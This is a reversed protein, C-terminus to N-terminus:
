TAWSRKRCDSLILITFEEIDEDTSKQFYLAVDELLNGQNGKLALVYDAKSNIIKAAIEKQTGMADITVTCDEIDLSDILEPIATIENSKEDVKIQGLVLGAKNAWASVIHITTKGETNDFSHRLTKGHILFGRL